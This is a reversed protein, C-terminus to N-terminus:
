PRNQANYNEGWESMADLVTKLSYGTETLSYEVRPPVEPYVTRSVLRKEELSRLNSSLVKPSIGPIARKSENFRKTGTLLYKLIVITWKDGILSLTTEIPCDPGSLIFAPENAM